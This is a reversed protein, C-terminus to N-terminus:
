TQLPVVVEALWRLEDAWSTPPAAPFVVFKSLGEAVLGQVLDRLADAGVPVVGTVDPQDPGRRRVAFTEAQGSERAYAISLGFHQPDITRGVESAASQIARRTAGAKAPTTLSGLWGDALAGARAVALPGSGGLWIELPDQLPLTALRLPASGPAPEVAEGAWWARLMPIIADILHGRHAGVIGLAEREGALGLGPVLTVLLRGASLHDLEALRSAVLFPQSGFPVLNVGLKLRESTAAAFALALLPDPVSLLPLDPFWLSDFGQSEAERVVDGLSASATGGLGVSVAFRVKM